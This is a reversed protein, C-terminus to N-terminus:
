KNSRAKKYLKAFMEVEDDNLASLDPMTEVNGNINANIEHGEVWGRKKGKTKLYFITASTNGEKIQQLLKTEVYDTVGEDNELLANAFEPDEDRYNYFTQRSIGVQECASSINGLTASMAKLFASKIKQEKARQMMARSMKQTKPSSKKTSSANRTKSKTAPVGDESIKKSM